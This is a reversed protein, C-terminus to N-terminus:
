INANNVGSKKNYGTASNSASPLFSINSKRKKMIVNNKQWFFYGVFNIFEYTKTKKGIKHKIHSCTIKNAGNIKTTKIILFSKFVNLFTIIFKNIINTGEDRTIIIIKRKGSLSSPCL